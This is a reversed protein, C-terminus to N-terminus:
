IVYKKYLYSHIDLKGDVTIVNHDIRFYYVSGYLGIKKINSESFDKSINRLSIPNEVIESDKGKYKIMEKGNVFLYSNDRNDHLNLCLRTRTASFNISYM